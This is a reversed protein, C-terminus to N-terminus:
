RVRSRQAEANIRKRDNRAVVVPVPLGFKSAFEFDREDHAPVAMIRGPGMGLLVFNGVWIPVKEGNFPDVAIKWYFDM